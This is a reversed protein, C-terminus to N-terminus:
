PWPSWGPHQPQFRWRPRTHRPGPSCCMYAHSPLLLRTAQHSGPSCSTCAPLTVQTAPQMSSLCVQCGLTGAAERSLVWCLAQINSAPRMSDVPGTCSMNLLIKMSAIINYTAKNHMSHSLQWNSYIIVANFIYALPITISDFNQRLKTM